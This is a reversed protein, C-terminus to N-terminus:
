GHAAGGLEDRLLLVIALAGALVIFAQVALDLARGTGLAEGIWRPSGPAPVSPPATTLLAGSLVAFLAASAAIAFAARANM